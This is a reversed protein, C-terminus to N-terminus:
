FFVCVCERKKIRSDSGKTVNEKQQSSITLLWLRPPSGWLLFLFFSFRVCERDQNWSDSEKTVNERQQCSITLLWLGPLSGGWSVFVFFGEVSVSAWSHLYLRMNWLRWVFVIILSLPVINLVIKTNYNLALRFVLLKTSPLKLIQVQYNWYRCISFNHGDVPEYIAQTLNRSEQASIRKTSLIVKELSM